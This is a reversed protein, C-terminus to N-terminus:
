LKGLAAIVKESDWELPGAYRAIEHGDENLIITMPFSSIKISKILQRDRDYLTVLNQIKLKNLFTDLVAGSKGRDMSIAIVDHGRQDLKAKLRDLSPLEAVCPACWTAWFNVILRKGKWRDFTVADNKKTYFTLGDRLPKPHQYQTFIDQTPAWPKEEEGKLVKTEQVTDVTKDASLKGKLSIYGFGLCLIVVSAIIFHKAQFSSM